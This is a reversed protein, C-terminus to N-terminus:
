LVTKSEKTFPEQFFPEQKHAELPSHFFDITFPVEGM